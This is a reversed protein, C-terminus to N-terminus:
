QDDNNVGGTHGGSHETAGASGDSTSWYKGKAERGSNTAHGDKMTELEAWDFRLELTIETLDDSEYDLDGYKVDKIWPNHLKWGEILRGESDIQRIELTDGLAAVAARKSMTQLDTDMQAPSYGSQKIINTVTSAM